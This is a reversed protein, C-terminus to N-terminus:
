FWLVTERCLSAGEQLLPSLGPCERAPKRPPRGRKPHRWGCGKLKLFTVLLSLSCKETFQEKQTERAAEEGEGAEASIGPGVSVLVDRLAVAGRALAAPFGGIDASPM